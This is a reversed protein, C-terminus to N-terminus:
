QLLSEINISKLESIVQKEISDIKKKLLCINRNPCIAKKFICENLELKGQFIKVLDTLFIKEPSLTLVFGGGKGKYSKLLGERNLRQLIKRLFPRPIGLRKVLEGVAVLRGKQQAM